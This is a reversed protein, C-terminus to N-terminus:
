NKFYAAVRRRAEVLNQEPSTASARLKLFDEDSIDDGLQRLNDRIAEASTSAMSHDADLLARLAAVCKSKLHVDGRLGAALLLDGTRIYSLEDRYFTDAGIPLVNSLALTYTIIEERNGRFGSLLLRRTRRTTYAIFVTTTLAIATGVMGLVTTLLLEKKDTTLDSTTTTAEIGKVENSRVSMELHIDPTDGLTMVSLRLVDKPLLREIDVHYDKSTSKEKINVGQLRNIASSEIIENGADVDASIGTLPVRGANEITLTSIQRFGNPTSIAPGATRVYTLVATPQTIQQYVFPAISFLGGLVVPGLIVLATREWTSLPRRGKEEEAEPVSSM